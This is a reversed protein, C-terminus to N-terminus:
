EKARISDFCAIARAAEAPTPVRSSYEAKYYLLFIVRASESLAFDAEALGDAYDLLELTGRSYGGIELLLRLAQYIDLVAQRPDGERLEEAQRRLKGIKRLSRRVRWEALWSATLKGMVIVILLLSLLILWSSFMLDYLNRFTQVFFRKTKEWFMQLRHLRGTQQSQKIKDVATDYKEKVKEQIKEQTKVMEVLTSDIKSLKSSDKQIQTLLDEKLFNQTNETLEPPTIKWEDDFPDRLQGIGVPLTRSDIESPPTADLTLWGLREIYIQTWAHAHYEYIEFMNTLTNYNGPSFGTAVRAPLGASRALVALACAFYECHGEKLEFLFYDAPERGPPVPVAELKYPYNKRLHDRLALAKGYATQEPATIEAALKRVRESIKKGPLQMYSKRSISEQWAPDPPLPPPKRVAKKRKKGKGAPAPPEAPVKVQDKPLTIRQPMQLPVILQVNTNYSFPLPSPPQLFEAGYFSAKINNHFSSSVEDNTYGVPRFGSYLRKSLLKVLIYKQDVTHFRVPSDEGYNRMRIREMRATAKWQAGDYQDYLRALHYLKVPSKVYFVLEKGQTASGSGDIISKSKQEPINAPKGQEGAASPKVDSEGSMSIRGTDSMRIKQPRLWSSLQPPLANDRETFFSTEFFGPVENNKLPMLFFIHWFLVGAVILQIMIPFWNRTWRNPLERNVEKGALTYNRCLVACVILLIAAGGTLYLHTTRPVLGGYILLFVCIFFLYFYDKQRGGAIFMLAIICLSEVLVLDPLATQLRWGAWGLMLGFLVCNVISRALSSYWRYPIYVMAAFVPVAALLGITLGAHGHLWLAGTFSVMQLLAFLVHMPSHPPTKRMRSSDCIYEPDSKKTSNMM